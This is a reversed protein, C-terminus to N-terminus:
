DSEGNVYNIAGKIMIYTNGSTFANGLHKSVVTVGDRQTAMNDPLFPDGSACRVVRGSSGLIDSKYSMLVDKTLGLMLFGNDLTKSNIYYYGGFDQIYCYNYAMYTANHALKLTPNIVSCPQLPKVNQVTLGVGLSKNIKRNDDTVNYLIINM